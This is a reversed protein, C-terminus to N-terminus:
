FERQMREAGGGGDREIFQLKMYKVIRLIDSVRYIGCFEEIHAVRFQRTM